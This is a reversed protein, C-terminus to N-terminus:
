QALDSLKLLNREESRKPEFHRGQNFKNHNTTKQQEENRSIAEDCPRRAIVLDITQQSNNNKTTELDSM